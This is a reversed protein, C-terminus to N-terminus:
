LLLQVNGNVIFDCMHYMYNPKVSTPFSSVCHIVYRQEFEPGPSVFNAVCPLKHNTWTCEFLHVLAMKDM